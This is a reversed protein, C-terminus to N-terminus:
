EEEDEEIEDLFIFGEHTALYKGYHGYTNCSIDVEKDQPLEELKEIIASFMNKLDKITM